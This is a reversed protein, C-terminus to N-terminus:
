QDSDPVAGGKKKKKGKQARSNFGDPPEKDAYGPIRFEVAKSQRDFESQLRTRLSKQAADNALNNTEYPDASLNYVETWDAHNPYQVLKDNETRLAFITPIAYNNEYFYEYFFSPRWNAVPGTGSKELLPRWSLGQMGKPVQLGAYDIFTEALDLNLVPEDIVVGKMGLKPYRLLLPIRLSEDYASRKDGLGHEGFYYGNDSAYVVMTNEAIGLDDLCKLLRGLNEDAGAICRFYNLLGEKPEASAAAKHKREEPLYPAFATENLAPRAMEGAFANKLRSPPQRPGHPSKFGVVLMFPNSKNTKMFGIAFDAAVDDVWGSTPKSAGNIEFPCDSYRGHAIYSASYDFGPRQGSQNGMHWKGVYGTRYGGSRLATAYTVSNTPFWTHNNAVGNLHSYRGTLFVARSPSCLSDTVFANRFRVGEAALRDMNPTKFWPFRAREGQEKQVVSMADYRQDDTYVFLFNPRNSAALCSLSIGLLPLAFILRTIVRSMTIIWDCGQRCELTKEEIGAL